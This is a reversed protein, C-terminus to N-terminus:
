KVALTVENSFNIGGIAARVSITNGLLGSTPITFKLEWVGVQGPALGSYQVNAFVSGGGSGGLAVCVYSHGSLCTNGNTTPKAVTNDPAAPAPQGDPVPSTVPGQGTGFLQVVSGFKAPNKASNPTGDQNLAMAQGTGQQNVTYLGPAYEAVVIPGGAVLEGTDATSAAIRQVGVPTKAPLVLQIQSASVSLVPAPMQDNVMLQRNALTTPLAGSSKAKGSKPALASGVLTCWSGQGVPASASATAANEITVKKLFQVVRNNGTDGVYLTDQRDVLLGVPGVLGEPTALGDPTDWNAAAGTLKQQGIALYANYPPGSSVLLNTLSPFVVVRNNATDSVFINGGSDLAVDLPSRLGTPGGGATSHSFDAQGLVLSAPLGSQPASHTNPYVVVRNAVLDAVYLNYSKDVALGQPASLTEASVTGPAASATFSTQGYVRLASAGTTAGAAFELVRNNGSDAVFLNGNPGIALGAPAHLSSANATSVDASTFDSQGLVVDPTIRGSQAVPRPYHLVRNNGSDAVFLDGNHEVVIGNPAFLGTGSPTRSAGGDVNAAATFLSPQGIVLDAPEGTHFHSADKWILVRNNNADSVYLAFPAQSYDIAIKYAANISGPKIQNAGNGSFGTQGLVRAATSAKAAFFLVRNNGADAALLDGQSDVAIGEVIALSAASAEPFAGTDITNTIFDPQGMVRAAAAGSVAGAPFVLVRNDAPVAVYLEGAGDVAVGTPGQMSSATPTAPVVRTTFVLQGFVNAATSAATVPARFELVRANLFDAVYLNDKSDFALGWPLDFGSASVAGGRNVKASTANPQGLILDAAPDTANLVAVPFRLVRNNGTDSVWLDGKSDCAVARPVNMTKSSIGGTNAAHKTFDPQGYVVDPDVNSPNAFPHPFRVVRNNGVDAVYLNGTAPDVALGGPSNLGKSGIGNPVTQQFNQQGLVLTAPAGNQFVAVNEWGLVRHNLTDAVYLHGSGEVAVGIPSNLTAAGVMNVANQRLDPQGLARYASLSLAANGSWCPVGLTAALWLCSGGYIWNGPKIWQM